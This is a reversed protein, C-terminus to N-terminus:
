NSNNIKEKRLIKRSFGIATMEDSRKQELKEQQTIFEQKAEARLKELGEKFQKLKLVDAIKEKQQTELETVTNKLKEILQDNIKSCKLFFEQEALRKKAPLKALDRIMNKLIRKQMLLEGRTQALKETIAFLRARETQEQKTKIDLVRQLRWAFRRM